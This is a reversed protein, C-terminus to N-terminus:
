LINPSLRYEGGATLSTLRYDYGFSFLQDAQQGTSASGDVYISFPRTFGDKYGGDKYSGYAAPDRFADLRGFLSNAFAGSVTQAIDVQAGITAPADIQNTQYRSVLAFGATTLHTGDYTFYQNQIAPTGSLCSPNATCYQSIPLFGYLGPNAAVRQELTGLD